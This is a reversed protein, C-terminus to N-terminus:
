VESKNPVISYITHLLEAQEYLPLASFRDSLEQRFCDECYMAGDQEEYKAYAECTDCIYFLAKSYVCRKGMCPLDCHVCHDEIRIM